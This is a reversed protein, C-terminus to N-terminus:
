KSQSQDSPLGSAPQYLCADGRVDFVCDGRRAIRTTAAVSAIAGDRAPEAGGSNAVDARQRAHWLPMVVATPSSTEMPNAQRADIMALAARSGYQCAATLRSIASWGSADGTMWSSHAAQWM